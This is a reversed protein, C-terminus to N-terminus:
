RRARVAHRQLLARARDVVPVDIMKGEFALAGVGDALARDYTEVMRRARELEAESPSFAANLIAVVSPHVCTAGDFGFTRAERASATMAATDAYDAVTRMLGFSALGAAKAAMHVLLKPLRLVEPTPEANMATAMDEGGTLLGMIRPSSRAISLADLAAGPDELVAIFRVPASRGKGAEYGDLHRALREITGANRTKTVLLIDAGADSAAEADAFQRDPESNIRVLVMAGNRRVAPVSTSLGARASAKANPAVSDELDLIIGDAGREHAKAIFKDSSAPVYLMSRLMSIEM